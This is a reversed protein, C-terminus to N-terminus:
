HRTVYRVTSVPMLFTTRLSEVPPDKYGESTGHTQGRTWWQSSWPLQPYVLPYPKSSTPGVRPTFVTFTVLEGAQLSTRIAEPTEMKFSESNLFTNLTSLDLVPRWRNNLKPVLFLWNCFFGTLKSKRGTTSYEQEDASVTSRFTLVAESSQPLQKNCDTVRDLQTQVPLPPHLGGEIHHSCKSKFGSGGM